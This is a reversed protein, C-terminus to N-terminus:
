EREFFLIYKLYVIGFRPNVRLQWSFVVGHENPDIKWLEV